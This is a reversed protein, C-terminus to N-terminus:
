SLTDIIYALTPEDEALSDIVRQLLGLPDKEHLAQTAPTVDGTNPDAYPLRQADVSPRDDNVFWDTTGYALLYRSNVRHSDTPNTDLTVVFTGVPDQGDFHFTVSPSYRSPVLGLLDDLYPTRYTVQDTAQDPLRLLAQFDTDTDPHTTPNPNTM